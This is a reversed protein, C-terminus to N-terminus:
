LSRSVRGWARIRSNDLREVTSEDLRRSRPSFTTTGRDQWVDSCCAMLTKSYFLWTEIESFKVPLHFLLM